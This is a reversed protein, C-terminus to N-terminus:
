RLTEIDPQYRIVLDLESAVAKEGAQAPALRTKRVSALIGALMAEPVPDARIVRVDTVLGDDSVRLRLTISGAVSVPIDELASLDPPVLFRAKATLDGDGATTAAPLPEAPPTAPMPLPPVPTGAPTLRALLVTAPAGRGPKHLPTISFIGAVSLHLVISIALPRALRAASM